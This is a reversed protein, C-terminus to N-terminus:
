TCSLTFLEMVDQNGQMHGSDTMIFLRVNCTTLYRNVACYDTREHKVFMTGVMPCGNPNRRTVDPHIPFVKRILRIADANASGEFVFNVIRPTNSASIGGKGTCLLSLM